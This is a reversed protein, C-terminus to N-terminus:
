KKVKKPLLQPCLKNIENLESPSGTALALCRLRNKTGNNILDELLKAKKTSIANLKPLIKNLSAKQMDDEEKLLQLEQNAKKIDAADQELQKIQVANSAIQVNQLAITNVYEKIQHQSWAFYLGFMAVMVAMGILLYKSMGFM